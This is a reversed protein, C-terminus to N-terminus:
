QNRETPPGAFREVRVNLGVDRLTNFIRQAGVINWSHVICTEPWMEQPQKTMWRAVNEGTIEMKGYMDHIEEGLDHDFFIMDFPSHSTFLEKFELSNKAHLVEHGDQDVLVMRFWDHRGQEDDLILIKM